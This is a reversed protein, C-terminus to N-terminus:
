GIGICEMCIRIAKHLVILHEGEHVGVFIFVVSLMILAYSFMRSKTARLIKKMGGFGKTM